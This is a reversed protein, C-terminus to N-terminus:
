FPMAKSSEDSIFGKRGNADTTFLTPKNAFSITAKKNRALVARPVMRDRVLQKLPNM